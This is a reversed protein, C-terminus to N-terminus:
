RVAERSVADRLSRADKLADNLRARVQSGARVLPLRVTPDLGIQPYMALKLAPVGEEEVVNMLPLLHRHIHRAGDFDGRECASWLALVETPFVNAVASFLGHAGFAASAIANPEHATLFARSSHAASLCEIHLPNASHDIVGAVGDVLMLKAMEQISPSLATRADFELILPLSTARTVRRVHGLLGETSPRSYYPVVMILADAGAVQADLAYASRSM